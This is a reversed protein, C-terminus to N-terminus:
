PHGYSVMVAFFVSSQGSVLPGDVGGAGYFGGQRGTSNDYRYEARLQTKLNGADVSYEVTATVAKIFQISGTLTGNPDWYLEPRVALAWPGGIRWRTFLASGTWFQQLSGPGTASQETGADYVLAITRTEDSWQLMTNSFFRWYRLSTEAQEPGIFFNQTVCWAPTVQWQLHGAYKPVNNQHQLYNYDSVIFLATELREDIRYRGGLGILFYPSYDAIWSRTYNPNDRARFSEYGIFSNILGGTLLLGNGVPVRYSVNARALYRLVDAGPLQSAAPVQGDTDYGGQVGFEFGWPSASSAEKRVDLAGLNPSLQNLRDTTLKSRWLHPQSFNFNVPYSLDLYADWRYAADPDTVEAALASRELLASSGGLLALLLWKSTKRRARLPPM